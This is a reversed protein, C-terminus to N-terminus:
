RCHKEAEPFIRLKFNSECMDLPAMIDENPKSNHQCLRGLGVLLAPLLESKMEGEEAMARNMEKM